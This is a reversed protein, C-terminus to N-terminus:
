LQRQDLRGVGTVGRGGKGTGPACDDAEVGVAGLQIPKPVQHVRHVARHHRDGARLGSRCLKPRESSPRGGVVLSAKSTPLSPPDELTDQDDAMLQSVLMLGQPERGEPRGITSSDAM